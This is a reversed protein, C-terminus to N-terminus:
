VTMWIVQAAALERAHLGEAEREVGMGTAHAYLVNGWGDDVSTGEALPDRASPPDYRSVEDYYAGWVFVDETGEGEIPSPGVRERIVLLYSQELDPGFHVRFTGDDYVHVVGPWEGPGDSWGVRNITYTVTGIPQTNM